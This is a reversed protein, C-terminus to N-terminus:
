LVELLNFSRYEIYYRYFKSWPMCKVRKPDDLRVQLYLLLQVAPSIVCLVIAADEEDLMRESM